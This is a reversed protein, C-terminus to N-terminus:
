WGTATAAATPQEELVCGCTLCTLYPGHVDQELLLPGRDRPCRVRMRRPPTPITSPVM